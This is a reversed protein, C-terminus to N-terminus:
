RMKLYKHLQVGIRSGKIHKQLELARQLSNIPDMANIQLYVPVKDAITLIANEFIEDDIVYKLENYLCGGHILWTNQPKPSCTIWDFNYRNTSNTGNTELHIKMEPYRSRVSEVLPILNWCTPEGGTIVCLECHKDLKSTIIDAELCECKDKDIKTDCFQCPPNLNCNALRIFNASRGMHYGEGQISAFIEAVLYVGFDM